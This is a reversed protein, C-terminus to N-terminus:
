SQLLPEIYHLVGRLDNVYPEWHDGYEGTLLLTKMGLREAGALDVEPKDGVMLTQHPNMDLTKLIHIFPQPSPKCEKTDEGAIVILDFYPLISLSAIREKKSYSEGDYDTLLVLTVKEKLFTLLEECYPAVTTTEVITEWYLTTLQQREHPSLGPDVFAWWENRDYMSLLNSTYHIKEVKETVKQLPITTLAAIKQSVRKKALQADSTTLTGDLDFIVAELM